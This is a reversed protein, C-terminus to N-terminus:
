AAAGRDPVLRSVILSVAAFGLMTLIPGGLDTLGGGGASIGLGRTFASIPNLDLVTGLAGTAAIPFFAGGAMGLVIALISQVIGAQEPTTAIRAIIFMLSTGAAVVCLVLLVIWAPPGFSVGFLLSGAALLVLTAVVGLIYSALAKAAPILFPRVPMSQLRALTGQRREDLLALVGFGVTFLLFLGAQGAVVSSGSDLQETATAGEVTSVQPGVEGVMEAVEALQEPSLGLAAGAGAAEASATMRDTVGQLVSVIISGELGADDGEIIELEAGQGATVTDTFDDPVLIGLGAEEDAVADRVEDQAVRDVTVDLGPVAGITDLLVDGLQEDESAAAVTIPEMEVEDVDGFVLNMVFMLALPVALGFIPVSKDRVRQRLDSATMTWLQRLM